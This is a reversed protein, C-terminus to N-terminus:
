LLDFPKALMTPLRLIFLQDSDHSPPHSSPHSPPVPTHAHANYADLDAPSQLEKRISNNSRLVHFPLFGVITKVSGPEAELYPLQM